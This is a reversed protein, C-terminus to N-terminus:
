FEPDFESAFQGYESKTVSIFSSKREDFYLEIKFQREAPQADKRIVAPIGPFYVYRHSPQWMVASVLEVQSDNALAVSRLASIVFMLTIGFLLLRIVTLKKKVDM